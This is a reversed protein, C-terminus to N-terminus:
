TRYHLCFLANSSVLELNSDPAIWGDVALYTEDLGKLARPAFSRSKLGKESGETEAGGVSSHRELKPLYAARGLYADRQEKGM